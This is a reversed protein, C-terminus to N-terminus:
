FPHYRDNIFALQSRQFDIARNVLHIENVFEAFFRNNFNTFIMRLISKFSYCDIITINGKIKIQDLGDLVNFGDIIWIWDLGITMGFEIEIWDM